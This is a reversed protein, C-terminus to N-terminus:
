VGIHVVDTGLPVCNTEDSALAHPEDEVRDAESHFRCLLCFQLLIVTDPSGTRDVLKRVVLNRGAARGTAMRDSDQPVKAPGGVLRDKKFQMRALTKKILYLESFGEEARQFQSCKPISADRFYSRARM